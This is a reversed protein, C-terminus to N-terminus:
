DHRLVAGTSANTAMKQYRRLWRSEVKPEPKTWKKRREALEEDSLHVILKREPISYEIIDGDKLLGIPGGEAAEPSIHGICAGHTGGSFRGDTILAVQAGLGQGMIYSTPALMEQMGPGGIPGENRIVVVDGAKVKGALIGECADDQSEFIIAPGKHEKMDPHVGASKVVSGNEALNGSLIALGGEKSYANELPHIVEENQITAGEINEGLTKGTVTICDLNLAGDIKAIETMIASIGGAKHVDEIHWHSSPSVKCINPTIKSLKNIRELDYDVGAENAIALTHLVTNTSGGMAMDITFANDVSKETIIERPLPGGTKAMEVARQAAAAWLKKREEATALQTGNGPLGLGIVETLCNMSNATFMGSCSGASPCAKCEIHKLRDEDIKGSKFEAVAEFVSVLDIVEGEDTKGAEMPGGSCFITPINCRMAGMMMGPVIKDCNPICIMADFAHASVMTEVCDAILERSPLSFKMGSHGMAIGDCVGIMNFEIPTGGAKRVEEKILEGVKNLHAHGPIVENFSNCIAIFPKEIDESSMGTARMLSRHPAREFGKKIKDSRM